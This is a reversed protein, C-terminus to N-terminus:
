LFPIVQRITDRAPDVSIFVPKVDLKLEQKCQEVVKGIKVLENPGKFVITWTLFLFFFFFFFSSSSTSYSSFFFFSFFFFSSSLSRENCIDPCFTFGFYLLLFQGRFSADTVPVGDQNVLVFPGGLAPKGTSVIESSIVKKTKEEKTYQYFALLGLGTLGM